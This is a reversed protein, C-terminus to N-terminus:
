RVISLPKGFVDRNVHTVGGEPRQIRIPSEYTPTGFAQYWTRTQGVGPETVVTYPGSGDGSYATTTVLLGHESDQGVSSQRGLGDYETWIGTSPGPADSPYSAFITRGSGDYAFRLYSQTEAPRAADYESVVM